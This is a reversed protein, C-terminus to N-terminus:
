NSLGYYNDRVREKLKNLQKLGSTQGGISTIFDIKDAYNRAIGTVPDGALRVKDKGQQLKYDECMKMFNVREREMCLMTKSMKLFNQQFGATEQMRASIRRTNEQFEREVIDILKYKVVGGIFRNRPLFLCMGKQSTCTVSQHRIRSNKFLEYLGFYEGKGLLMLRITGSLGLVSSDQNQALDAPQQQIKQLM